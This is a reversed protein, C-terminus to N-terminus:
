KRASCPERRRNNVRMSPSVSKFGSKKIGTLKRSSLGCKGLSSLRM